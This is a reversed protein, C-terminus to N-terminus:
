LIGGEMSLTFKGNGVIKFDNKGVDLRQIFRTKGTNLAYTVGKYILNMNATTTFEVNKTKRLTVVSFDLEGSVTVDVLDNVVGNEFDFSDWEDNVLNIDYKYPECKAKIVITGLQKDSSWSDVEVRGVYYFSADDDLIIKMRKGHIANTVDSLISAWSYLSNMATFTFELPRDDYKIEDSLSETMDISGDRFPVEVFNTKASPIGIVKSKLLLGFDSFSHLNEFTVGNM